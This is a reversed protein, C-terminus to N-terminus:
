YLVAPRPGRPTRGPTESRHANAHAGARAPAVCQPCTGPDFDANLDTCGAAALLLLGLRRRIAAFISM